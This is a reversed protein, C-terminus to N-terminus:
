VGRRMRLLYLFFPGGVFATIIGVPIEAPSLITRALTDALLLFLAGFLGSAPLLYRHDPGIILRVMHPVMLGVFGILGTFAVASATTLSAVIMLTRRTSRADVGLEEARNEGMLMLNLRPAYALMIIFGATVLPAAVAVKTWSATTLGGMLWIIVTRLDYQTAVMLLSLVATFTSGVAVGSLLLSSSSTEGAFTALRYVLTAALVAGLFALAPLGFIGLSGFPRWIIAVTAGVAAGASVGLLYPEALPNRFVGQFTAGATALATGAVLAMVIRPLRLDRLLRPAWSPFSNPDVSGPSLFELTARGVQTPTLGAAGVVAALLLAGLLAAALVAMLLRYRRRRARRPNM